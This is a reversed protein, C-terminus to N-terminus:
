LHTVFYALSNITNEEEVTFPMALQRKSKRSLGNMPPLYPYTNRTTNEAPKSENRGRIIFLNM